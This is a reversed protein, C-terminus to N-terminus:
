VADFASEYDKIVVLLVKNVYSSSVPLIKYKEEPCNGSHNHAM